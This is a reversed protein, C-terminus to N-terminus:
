KRFGTSNISLRKSLVYRPDINVLAALADVKALLTNFVVFSVAIGGAFLSREFVVIPILGIWVEAPMPVTWIWLAGGVAHATFTAGYSRLILHDPLLAAILPILWFLSFYWVQQGTPHAIFIAMAALGIFAGVEKKKKTGFYIAALLMPALRMINILEFEKGIVLFDIGQALFVTAAGIAPGLIGGAIPGFFQFLTFFQNEAGLLQSFNIKNAVLVLLAFIFM